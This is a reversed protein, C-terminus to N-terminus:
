AEGSDMLPKRGGLIYAVSELILGNTNVDTVAIQKGTKESIGSSFGMGPMMAKDRVLDVLMNSYDGPRSALWLYAGKASVLRLSNALKAAKEPSSTKLTDVAFDGGEDTLQYGQYTFYPPGAM